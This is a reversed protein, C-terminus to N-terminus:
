KLVDKGLTEKGPQGPLMFGGLIVMYNYLLKLEGNWVNLKMMTSTHRYDSKFRCM